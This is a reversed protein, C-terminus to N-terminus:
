KRLWLKGRGCIAAETKGGVIGYCVVDGDRCSEGWEPKNGLQTKKVQEDQNEPSFHILLFFHKM